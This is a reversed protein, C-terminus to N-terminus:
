WIELIFLQGRKIGEQKKQKIFFGRKVKHIYIRGRDRQPNFFLVAFDKESQKLIKTEEPIFEKMKYIRIM